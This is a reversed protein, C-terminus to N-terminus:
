KWEYLEDKWNKPPAGKYLNYLNGKVHSWINDRESLKPKHEYVYVDGNKDVAFWKAWDPVVVDVNMTNM